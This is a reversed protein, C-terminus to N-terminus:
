RWNPRLGAQPASVMELKTNDIEWSLHAAVSVVGDVRRALNELLTADSKTELRGNLTVNGEVSDVAVRKPDIWLVNRIVHGNIEDIIDADSRAFARLIDSRSLIGVLRSEGNVIPLRKIGAKRMLRAAEAHDATPGLTIVDATMVDGVLREVRPIETDPTFWRLLRARKTARRDSEAKVFDAETIVGELNGRADTVVLGSVGGEIMQRAAEKLSTDVGVTIVETTMLDHVKM